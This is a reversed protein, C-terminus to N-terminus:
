DILKELDSIDNALNRLESKLMSIYITTIKDFTASYQENLEAKKTSVLIRAKKREVKDEIDWIKRDLSDGFETSLESTNIRPQYEVSSLSLWLSGTDTADEKLINRVENLLSM